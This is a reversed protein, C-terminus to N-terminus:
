SSGYFESREVFGVNMLVFWASCNRVVDVVMLWWVVCEVFNVVSLRYKVLCVWMSEGIFFRCM